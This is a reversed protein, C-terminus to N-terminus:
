CPPRFFSLLPRDISLYEDRLVCFISRAVELQATAQLATVASITQYINVLQLPLDRRVTASSVATSRV